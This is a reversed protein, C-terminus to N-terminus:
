VLNFFYMKPTKKKKHYDIINMNLLDTGILLGKLIKFKKSILMLIEPKM